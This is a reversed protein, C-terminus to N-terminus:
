YPLNYRVKYAYVLDKFWKKDLALIDDNFNIYKAKPNKKLGLNIEELIYDIIKRRIYKGKNAYIKRLAQSSCYTCDYPCGRIALINVRERDSELFNDENFIERDPL